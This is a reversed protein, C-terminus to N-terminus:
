FYHQSRPYARSVEREFVQITFLISLLSIGIALIGVWEYCNGRLTEGIILASTVILFSNWIFIHLISTNDRTVWSLLNLKTLKVITRPDQFTTQYLTTKIIQVFTPIAVFLLMILNSYSNVFRTTEPDTFFIQISFIGDTQNDINVAHGSLHSVVFIGIFKGAIMLMAPWVSIKIARRLLKSM